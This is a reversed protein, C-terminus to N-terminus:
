LLDVIWKRIQSKTEATEEPCRWVQLRRSPFRFDPDNALKFGDNIPGEEQALWPLQL